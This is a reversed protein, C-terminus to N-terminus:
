NFDDILIENGSNGTKHSTSRGAVIKHNIFIALPEVRTKLKKHITCLLGTNREEHAQVCFPSLYLVACEIRLSCFNKLETRAIIDFYYGAQFDALFGIKISIFYM